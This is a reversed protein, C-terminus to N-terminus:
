DSKNGSLIAEIEEISKNKTEPLIFYLIALGLSVCVAYFLFIDRAGMNSLQWPFLQQVFYNVIATVLQAGPIAIGRLQAPFIESLVVWMVPGISFQFAAIFSLIAFLVLGANINAAKGVLFDKKTNALDEGLIERMGVIFAVDSDYVQDKATQLKTFAEANEEGFNEQVQTMADEDLSYEAQHFSWACLGLSIACWILGYVVVPRRGLRDILFFAAVNAILSVIGIWVTNWLPDASGTQEFVMPAYTNIANIGTIPQVTAIVIAIISAKRAHKSFLERLNEILSRAGHSKAMSNRIAVLEGPIDEELAIKKMAAKAEEERGVIMLWRPSEPILFCLVFWLLAFPIESGLMWRWAHETVNWSEVWGAGSDVSQQILFNIFYAATLGIVINFQNMAVLRGRLHAPAIEGIYMSAFALSCFALGGLFRASVLMTYSPALASGVASVLYLGAIVIMTKKRGIKNCIPGAFLLAFIAGFGPAAGVTGIQIDNLGFLEKIHSFTGAIVGLDLGFVLGGLTVFAAYVFANSHPSRM